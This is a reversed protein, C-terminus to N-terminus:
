VRRGWFINRKGWFSFAAQLLLRERKYIIDDIIKRKHRKYYIDRESKCSEKTNETKRTRNHGREFRRRLDEKTFSMKKQLFYVWFATEQM